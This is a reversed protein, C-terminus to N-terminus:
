PPKATLGISTSLCLLLFDHDILDFEPNIDFLALLTVKPDNWSLHSLASPSPHDKHFSGQLLWIALCSVLWQCQPQVDEAESFRPMFVSFVNRECKISSLSSSSSTPRNMEQM